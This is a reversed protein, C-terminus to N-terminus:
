DERYPFRKDILQDAFNQLYDVLTQNKFDMMYLICYKRGKGFYSELQSYCNLIYKLDKDLKFNIIDKNQIYKNYLWLRAAIHFISEGTGQYRYVLTEKDDPTDHLIIEEIVEKFESYFTAFANDIFIMQHIIDVWALNIETLVMEYSIPMPSNVSSRLSNMKIDLIKHYVPTIPRKRRITFLYDLVIPNMSNRPDYVMAKRHIAIHNYANDDYIYEGPM